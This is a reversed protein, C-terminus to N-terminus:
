PHIRAPIMGTGTSTGSVFRTDNNRKIGYMQKHAMSKCALSVFMRQKITTMRM